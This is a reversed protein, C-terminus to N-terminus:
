YSLTTASAKATATSVQKYLIGVFVHTAYEIYGLITTGFTQFAKAKYLRVM